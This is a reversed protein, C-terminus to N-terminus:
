SPVHDAEPPAVMPGNPVPGAAAPAPPPLFACAQRQIESILPAVVKFPHDTLYAIITNWAGIPLEIKAPIKDIETQDMTTLRM